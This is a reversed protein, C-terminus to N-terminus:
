GCMEGSDVQWTRDPGQIAHLTVAGSKVEASKGSRSAERWGTKPM